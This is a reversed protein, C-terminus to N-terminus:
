QKKLEMEICNWKEDMCLYAEIKEISVKKFGCSEYCRIAALNNEFVGLSVKNVKVFEFAYRIALSIMKKGYGKERQMDNIIVFGLRLEDRNCNPFRMTFHGIVETEDFATMGWFDDNNIYKEYYSNIDSATIPNKEYRDASWQRFSFENKTWSVIYQADCNKYPRLRLM